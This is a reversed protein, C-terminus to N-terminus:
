LLFEEVLTSTWCASLQPFCPHGSAVSLELATGFGLAGVGGLCLVPDAWSLALRRALPQIGHGATDEGFEGIVRSHEIGDAVADIFEGDVAFAEIFEGAQGAAVEGFEDASFWDAADAHGREAWQEVREADIADDDFVRKCGLAQFIAEYWAIIGVM